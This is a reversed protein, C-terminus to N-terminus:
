NLGRTLFGTVARPLDMADARASRGRLEAARSGAWPGRHGALWRWRWGPGGVRGSDLQAAGLGYM